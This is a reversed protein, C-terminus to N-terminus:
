KALVLKPTGEVIVENAKIEQLKRIEEVKELGSLIREAIAPTGFIVTNNNTQVRPEDDFKKPKDEIMKGMGKLVAVSRDFVAFPNENILVPDHIVREVNDVCQELLNSLRNNLGKDIREKQKEQLAKFYRQGNDSRIILGIAVPTMRFQKAIAIQSMTGAAYLAVIMDYKPLWKKPQWDRETKRPGRKGKFM